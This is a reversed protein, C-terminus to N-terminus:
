GGVGAGDGPGVIEGVDAGVVVGVGAGDIAVTLLPPEAVNLVTTMRTMQRAASPITANARESTIRHEFSFLLALSGLGTSGGISVVAAIISILATLASTRGGAVTSVRVDSGIAAVAPVFCSSSMSLVNDGGAGNCNAPKSTSSMSQQLLM